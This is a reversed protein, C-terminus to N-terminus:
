SSTGVCAGHACDVDGRRAVDHHRRRHRLQSRRLLPETGTGLVGVALKREDAHDEDDVDGRRALDVSWPDGYQRGRLLHRTRTGLLDLQVPDVARDNASDM